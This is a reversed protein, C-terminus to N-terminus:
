QGSSVILAGVVMMAQLRKHALGTLNLVAFITNITCKSRYQSYKIMFSVLHVIKFKISIFWVHEKM